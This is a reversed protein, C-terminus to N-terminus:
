RVWTEWCRDATQMKTYLYKPSTDRNFCHNPAYICYEAYAPQWMYWRLTKIIDRSWYKIPCQHNGNWRMYHLTHVEWERLAQDDAMSAVLKQIGDCNNFSSFCLTSYEESLVNDQYTKMVMNKMGCKSYKYEKHTEFLYYLNNQLNM